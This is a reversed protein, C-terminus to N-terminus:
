SSDFDNWSGDSNGGIIDIIIIKTVIIKINIVKPTKMM